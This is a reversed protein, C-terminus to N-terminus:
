YTNAHTSKLLNHLARYFQSPRDELEWPLDSYYDDRQGEDKAEELYKRDAYDELAQMAERYDPDDSVSTSRVAQPADVAPKEVKPSADKGIRDGIAVSVRLPMTWTAIGTDQDLFAAAELNGTMREGPNSAHAAGSLGLTQEFRPRVTFAEDFLTRRESSWGTAHSKLHAVIRSIRVGENSVWRILHATNDSGDWVSGTTTLIRGQSDKDPVGSHHLAALEWDVNFVGSGSSGPMTDADYHLYDDVVNTIKSKVKDPLVVQQPEGGPHQIIVIPEGVVSKGSEEIFPSWGRSSVKRGSANVPEVAVLAFDLHVNTEFFTNPQLRYEDIAGAVGTPDEWFDFQVTSSQATSARDLVHNNTLLLRPSVMFDTGYGLVRGSASRIAIRGVSRAM